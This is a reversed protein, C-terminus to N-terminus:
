ENTSRSPTASPTATVRPRITARPSPSPSPSPEISPSASVSAELINDLEQQSRILYLSTDVKDLRTEVNQLLFFTPVFGLVAVLVAHILVPLPIPSEINEVKVNFAKLKAIADNLFSNNIM